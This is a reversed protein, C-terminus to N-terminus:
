SSPAACDHRTPRQNTVTRQLLPAPFKSLSENHIVDGNNKDDIIMSISTIFLDM